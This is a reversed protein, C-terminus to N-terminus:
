WCITAFFVANWCAARRKKWPFMGIIEKCGCNLVMSWLNRCRGPLFWSWSIGMTKGADKNTVPTLRKMPIYVVRLKLWCLGECGVWGLWRIQIDTGWDALANKDEMWKRLYGKFDYCYWKLLKLVRSRKEKSWKLCCCSFRGPLAKQLKCDIFEISTEIVITVFIVKKDWYRNIFYIWKEGAPVAKRSFLYLQLCSSVREMMFVVIHKSKQGIMLDLEWWEM